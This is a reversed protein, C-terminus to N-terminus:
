RADPATVVRSTYRGVSEVLSTAGHVERVLVDTSSRRSSVATGARWERISGSWTASNVASM